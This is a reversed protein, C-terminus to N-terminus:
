GAVPVDYKVADGLLHLLATEVLQFVFMPVRLFDMLCPFEDTM